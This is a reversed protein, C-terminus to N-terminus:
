RNQQANGALLEEAHRRATPSDVQGSLMRSVEDVRAAGSVTTIHTTTREDAQQKSVVLHADALAAIQALHTVVLVQHRRGLEALAQGVAIAASGGIGADVEDFILTDPAETLVLRLALMTRALEGGSAVKSLPLPPVGTNAALRFEVEDGPDEGVAIDVTAGPMALRALHGAVDSALRPAAARRVAGVEAAARAIRAMAEHRDAELAAARTEFSELEELRGRAEDEYAIVDALGEGYKRRLEKLLHRRERIAQLREPDEEITDAVRRLEDGADDLEFALAQFREAHPALPGRGGLAAIATRLTDLAGGEETLATLAREAAERHATAGALVTEEADLADDEDPDGLRAAGLEQVQFRLLDIERARTRADGGLTALAAEVEALRGRADRLPGLDVAAFRDLAGRQVAATLLSQHAHQGHLDVLDAGLEALTGATALRGNVYARSRGELPVVRALVYETDGSVFRGEVRAEAAGARVVVPDARGGILLDIADLLMSKGAGTEGTLVTLGPGLVLELRDILGLDEIHLEILM